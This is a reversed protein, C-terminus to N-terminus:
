WMDENEGLGYFRAFVRGCVNKPLFLSGTRSLDYSDTNHSTTELEANPYRDIITTLDGQSNMIAFPKEGFKPLNYKKRIEQILAGRQCYEQMFYLPYFFDIFDKISAPIQIQLNFIYVPAARQMIREYIDTTRRHLDDIVGEYCFVIDPKTGTFQPQTIIQQKM